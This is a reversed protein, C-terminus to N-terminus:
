PSPSRELERTIRRELAIFRAPYPLTETRHMMPAYTFEGFRAESVRTTGLGTILERRLATVRQAVPTAGVCALLLSVGGVALRWRMVSGSDVRAGFGVLAAEQERRRPRVHNM